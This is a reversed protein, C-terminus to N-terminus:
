VHTGKGDSHLQAVLTRTHMHAENGTAQTSTSTPTGTNTRAHAHTKPHLAKLSVPSTCGLPANRAVLALVTYRARHRSRPCQHDKRSCHELEPCHRLASGAMPCPHCISYPATMIERDSQTRQPEQQHVVETGAQV